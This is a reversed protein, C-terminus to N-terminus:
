ELHCGAVYPEDFDKGDLSPTHHVMRGEECGVSIVSGVPAFHTVAWADDDEFFAGLRRGRGADLDVRWAGSLAYLQVVRGRIGILPQVDDGYEPTITPNEYFRDARVFQKPRSMDIPPEGSNSHKINPHVARDILQIAIAFLLLVAMAFVILGLCSIQQPHATAKGMAGPLHVVSGVPAFKM